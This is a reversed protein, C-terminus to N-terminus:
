LGSGHLVKAYSFIANDSDTKWNGFGLVLLGTLIVNKFVVFFGVLFQFLSSFLTM